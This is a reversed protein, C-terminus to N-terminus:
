RNKCQAEIKKKPGLEAASRISNEAGKEFLKVKTWTWDTKKYHKICSRRKCLELMEDKLEDTFLQKCEVQIDHNVRVVNIQSIGEISNQSQVTHVSSEIGDALWSSNTFIRNAVM